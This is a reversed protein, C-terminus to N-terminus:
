SRAWPQGELIDFSRQALEEPSWVPSTLPLYLVSWGAKHAESDFGSQDLYERQSTMPKFGQRAPVGADQLARVAERTSWGDPLRLDYVWPAERPPMRWAAPCRRDLAAEYLKREVVERGFDRLSELVLGAHVDSMRYNHGRPRHRFDHDENFGLCRLERAVAAVKADRFYCAGGEAGHVIKNKYFSWCAADSSPHPRVGHAEALDEVVALKLCDAVEAVGTMNCTRGYVHVPMIAVPGPGKDTAMSRWAKRSLSTMDMVLRRPCCDVFAPVLGALTCARACAVMTFDPVMVTGGPRLELAELALHLAATGSSCAVIQRPEAGCWKALEQELIEYTQM